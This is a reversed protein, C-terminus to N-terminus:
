IEAPPTYGNFPTDAYCYDCRKNCVNIVELEIRFPADPLLEHM